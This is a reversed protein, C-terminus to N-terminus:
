TGSHYKEQPGDRAEKNQRGPPMLTAYKLSCESRPRGTDQEDTGHQRLHVASGVWAGCGGTGQVAPGM